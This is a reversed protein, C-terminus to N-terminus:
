RRWPPINAADLRPPMLPALGRVSPAGVAADWGTRGPPWHGSAVEDEACRSLRYAFLEAFAASEASPWLGSVWGFM